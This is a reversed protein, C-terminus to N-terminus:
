VTNILEIVKDIGLVEVMESMVGKAKMKVDEVDLQQPVPTETKSEKISFNATEATCFKIHNKLKRQHKFESDCITCINYNPCRGSRKHSKM